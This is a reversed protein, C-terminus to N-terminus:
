PAVVVPRGINCIETMGPSREAFLGHCPDNSNLGVRNWVTQSAANPGTCPTIAVAERSWRPGQRPNLLVPSGAAIELSARTEPAALLRLDRTGPRFSGPTM